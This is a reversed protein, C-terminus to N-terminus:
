EAGGRTLRPVVTHPESAPSAGMGAAWMIMTGLRARGGHQLAAM